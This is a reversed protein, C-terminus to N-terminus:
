GRRRMPTVTALMEKAWEKDDVNKEVEKAAMFDKLEAMDVRRVRGKRYIRLGQRGWKELTTISVSVLKAAEAIPICGQWRASQVAALAARLEERVVERLMAKLPDDSSM